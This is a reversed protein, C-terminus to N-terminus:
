KGGVDVGRELLWARVADFKKRYVEHRFLLEEKERWEGMQRMRALFRIGSDEALNYDAGAELLYLVSELDNGAAAQALPLRRLPIPPCSPAM